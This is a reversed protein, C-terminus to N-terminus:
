IQQIRELCANATSTLTWSFTSAVRLTWSRYEKPTPSTGDRSERLVCDQTVSPDVQLLGKSEAVSNSDGKGGQSWEKMPEEPIQGTAKGSPSHSQDVSLESTLANWIFKAMWQCVLCYTCFGIWCPYTHAVGQRQSNSSNQPTSVPKSGPSLKAHTARFFQLTFVTFSVSFISSYLKLTPWLMQNGQSQSAM